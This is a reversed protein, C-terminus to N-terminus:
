FEFKIIFLNYKCFIIIKKMKTMKKSKTSRMLKKIMDKMKEMLQKM